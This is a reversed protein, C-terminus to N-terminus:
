WEKRVGLSIFRGLLDANEPDYGVGIANNVFPPRKNFLNQTNLDFTVDNLRYRVGFDVTTWPHVFREPSSVTDRYSDSYNLTGMVSFAGREWLLDAKGRFRLPYGVRDVYNTLPSTNSRAKSFDNVYTANLAAEFTGFRSEKVYEMSVDLGETTMLAINDLRLDIFADIPTALCYNVDGLFQGRMCLDVHQEPTLNRTVFPALTRDDLINPSFDIRDIRDRYKLNFYTLAFSLGQSPVTFDAGLTWTKAKEDELEPNTGFWLLVQSLHSSADLLSTLVSFNRSTDREVLSPAKFSESWSGRFTVGPLPSWNLGYRPTTRHGFDSYDDYRAAVSVRLSELLWQQHHEDFLPLLLEAYAANVTRKDHWNIL